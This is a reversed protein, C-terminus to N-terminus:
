LLQLAVSNRKRKCHKQHLGLEFFCQSTHVAEMKERSMFAGKQVNYLFCFEQIFSVLPM